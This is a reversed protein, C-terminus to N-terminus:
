CLGDHIGSLPSQGSGSLLWLFLVSSILARVRALHRLAGEAPALSSCSVAALVVAAMDGDVGLAVGETPSLRTPTAAARAAPAPVASLQLAPGYASRLTHEWTTIAAPHAVTALGAPASPPPAVQSASNSRGRRPPETPRQPTFLAQVSDLSIRASALPARPQRASPMDVAARELLGAAAANVGRLARRRILWWL